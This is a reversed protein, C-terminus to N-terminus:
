VSPRGIEKLLKRLITDKFSMIDAAPEIFAGPGGMVETRYYRELLISGNLIPLGNITIGMAVARDRAASASGGENDQGDGSVDISLREAAFPLVQLLLAATDIAAALGTGGPDNKREIAEIARAARELSADDSLVTWPLVVPQTWPNSWLLLTLAIQRHRGEAIARALSPHRLAAALGDMQLRFDALNISASCDVALVLALDVTLGPVAMGRDYRGM